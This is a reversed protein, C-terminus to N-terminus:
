NKEKKQVNHLFGWETAYNAYLSETKVINTYHNGKTSKDDKM